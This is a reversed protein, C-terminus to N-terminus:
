LNDALIVQIAPVGILIVRMVQADDDGEIMLKSMYYDAPM